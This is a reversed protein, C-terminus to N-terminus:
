MEGKLLQNLRQKYEEETPESNKDEVKRSLNKEAHSAQSATEVYNGETAIPLNGPVSGRKEEGAIPLNGPAGAKKITKVSSTRAKNGSVIETKVINEKRSSIKSKKVISQTERTKKRVKERLPKWEAENYIKSLNFSLSRERGSLLFPSLWQILLWLGLALGSSLFFTPWYLTKKQAKTRNIIRIELDKEIDYYRAAQRLFSRVAEERVQDNKKPDATVVEMKVISSQPLVTASLSKAGGNKKQYFLSTNILASLNYSIQNLQYTARTSQPLLLFYVQSRYAVLGQSFWFFLGAWLLFLTAWNIVRIKDSRRKLSYM